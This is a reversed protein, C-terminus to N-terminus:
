AGSFITQVKCQVDCSYSLSSGVRNWDQKFAAGVFFNEEENRSGMPFSRCVASNFRQCRNMDIDHTYCDHQALPWLYKQLFSQDEGRAGSIGTPNELLAKQILKAMKFNLAGRKIGFMGGLMPVSHEPHDRMSHFHFDSSIWENVALLERLNLRSDTDRYISVKVTPDDVALFRSMMKRSASAGWTEDDYCRVIEVNSINTLMSEVSDDLGMVYVRVVWEPYYLLADKANQIAGDLFWPFDAEYAPSTPAFLSLAIIKKDLNGPQRVEVPEDDCPLFGTLSQTRNSLTGIGLLSLVVTFGLVRCLVDTAHLKRSLKTSAMSSYRPGSGASSARNTLDGPASYLVVKNGCTPPRNRTPLAVGCIVFVEESQNMFARTQYAFCEFMVMLTM